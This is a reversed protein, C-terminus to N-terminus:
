SSQTDPEQEPKFMEQLCSLYKDFNGYYLHHVADFFTMIKDHSNFVKEPLWYSMGDIDNFAIDEGNSLHKAISRMIFRSKDSCCAMGEAKNIMKNFHREVFQGHKFLFVFKNDSNVSNIVGDVTKSLPYILDHFFMGPDNNELAKLAEMVQPNDAIQAFSEASEKDLGSLIGGFIASLGKELDKEDSM